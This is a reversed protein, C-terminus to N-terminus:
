RCTQKGGHGTNDGKGGHLSDGKIVRQQCDGKMGSGKLWLHTLSWRRGNMNSEGKWGDVEVRRGDSGIEEEEEEGNGRRARSLRGRNVRGM